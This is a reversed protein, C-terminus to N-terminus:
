VFFHLKLSWHKTVGLWVCGGQRFLKYTLVISFVMCNAVICPRGYVSISIPIFIETERFRIPFKIRSMSKTNVSVMHETIQIHSQRKTDFLANGYPSLDIELWWPPLKYLSLIISKTPTDISHQLGNSVNNYHSIRFWYFMQKRKPVVLLIVESDILSWFISQFM